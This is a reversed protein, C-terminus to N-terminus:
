KHNPKRNAAACHQRDPNQLGHTSVAVLIFTRDRL